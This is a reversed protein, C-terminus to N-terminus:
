ATRVHVTIRHYGSAGEPLAPREREEQVVREGDTARAVLEFTGQGAFWDFHWLVWSWPSLPPLLTADSWTKGRDTSVEVRSIGRDGSFAIGHLRTWGEALMDGNAPVDILSTTKVRAQQDWGREEWYGFYEEEVLTVRTLWKAHKMGYKGPAVVRLPFGHAAPLLVGNMEYVLRVKADLAFELPLSETYGDASEFKVFRASAPVGAEELLSRLTIGKWLANGVLDGGVENSICELTNYSETAPRARMDALTLSLRRHVAGDVELRWTDGAVTPDYVGNKSVRYFEENSTIPQRPSGRRYQKVVSGFRGLVDRSVVLGALAIAALGTGQRLFLRRSIPSGSRAVAKRMAPKPFLWLRFGETALGFAASVTVAVSTYQLWGDPPRAAAAFAVLLAAAALQLTLATATALSWRLTGALAKPAHRSVAASVVAILAYALLQTVLLGGFLLPKGNGQFRDLLYSFWATPLLFTLGDVVMQALLVTDFAARAAIAAVLAVLGGGFGVLLDGALQTRNGGTVAM